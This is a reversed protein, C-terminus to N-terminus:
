GRGERKGKKEREHYLSYLHVYIRVYMYSLYTCKYMNM